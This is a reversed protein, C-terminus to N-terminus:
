HPTSSPLVSAKRMRASSSPAFGPAWSGEVAASTRRRFAHPKQEGRAPSLRLGHTKRTRRVEGRGCPGKDEGDQRRRDGEGKEIRRVDLPQGAGDAIRVVRRPEDKHALKDGPAAPKILMEQAQLRRQADPEVPRAQDIPSQGPEIVQEGEKQRGLVGLQPHPKQPWAQPDHDGGPGREPHDRGQGLLVLDLGLAAGNQGCGQQHHDIKAEVGLEMGAADIVVIDLDGQREGGQRAHHLWPGLAAPRGDDGPRRRAKAQGDPQLGQEELGQDGGEGHESVQTVRALRVPHRFPRARQHQGGDAEIDDLRRGLAQGKVGAVGYGGVQHEADHGCPDPDQDGHAEASVCAQGPPDQRQGQGTRRPEEGIKPEIGLAQVAGEGIHVHADAAEPEVMHLFDGVQGQVIGAMRVLGDTQGNRGQERQDGKRQDCKPPAAKEVIAPLRQAGDDKQAGNDAPRRHAHPSVPDPEGHGDQGYGCAEDGLPVRALEAQERGDDGGQDQRRDAPATKRNLRAGEHGGQEGLDSCFRGGPRFGCRGLRRFFVRRVIAEVGEGIGIKGVRGLPQRNRLDIKAGKDQGIRGGGGQGTRIVAHADADHRRARDQNRALILRPPQDALIADGIHQFAGQVGVMGVARTQIM